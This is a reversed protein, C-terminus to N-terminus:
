IGISSPSVFHGPSDQHGDYREEACRQRRRECTVIVAVSPIVPLVITKVIVDTLCVFASMVLAELAPTLVAGKMPTKSIQVSLEMRIVGLRPMVVVTPPTAIPSLM